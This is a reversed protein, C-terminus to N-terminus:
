SKLGIEFAKKKVEKIQLYINIKKILGAKKYDKQFTMKLM